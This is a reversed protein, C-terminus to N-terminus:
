LRVFSSFQLLRLRAVWGYGTFFGLPLQSCGFFAIRTRAIDADVRPPTRTRGVQSYVQRPSLCFFHSKM